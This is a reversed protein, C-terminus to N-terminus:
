KVGKVDYYRSQANVRTVVMSRVEGTEVNGLTMTEGVEPMDGAMESRYLDKIEEQWFIETLVMVKVPQKM